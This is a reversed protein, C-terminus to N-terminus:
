CLDPLKSKEFTKELTEATRAAKQEGITQYIEDQGITVNAAAESYDLITVNNNNPNIVLDGVIGVDFGLNNILETYAKLQLVYTDNYATGRASTKIDLIHTKGNHIIILDPTGVLNFGDFEKMMPHEDTIIDTFGDLAKLINSIIEKINLNEIKGEVSKITDDIAKEDKSVAELETRLNDLYTKKIGDLRLEGGKIKAKIAKRVVWDVFQGKEIPEIDGIAVQPTSEQKVNSAHIQNEIEKGDKKYVHKRYFGGVKHEISSDMTVSKDFNIPNAANVKKPPTTTSYRAVMATTIM